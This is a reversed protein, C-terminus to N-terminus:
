INPGGVLRLEQEGLQAGDLADLGNSEIISRITVIYAKGRESYHTLAGALAHGDLTKGAERQRARAERFETYAWHSNLNGMYAAVSDLLRGFILVEHSEGQDRARPVLGGGTRFTRQGFLANGERVFRSTGWGSEEAAQALALSPPIVDVRKLLENIDASELGYREALRDLWLQEYWSLQGREARLSLLRRREALIRENAKLVLPLMMKIFVQKREGPSQLRALDAPVRDILIRPVAAAGARVGGLRYEVRQFAAQLGAVTVELAAPQALGTATVQPAAAPSPVAPRAFNVAPDVIRGAMEGLVIGFLLVVSVFMFGLSAYEFRFDKSQSHM